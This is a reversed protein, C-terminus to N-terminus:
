TKRKTWGTKKDPCILSLALQVKRPLESFQESGYFEWLIERAVRRKEAAIKRGPRPYRWGEAPRSPRNECADEMIPETRKCEVFMEM